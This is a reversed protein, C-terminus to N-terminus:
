NRSTQAQLARSTQTQLAFPDHQANSVRAEHTRAALAFWGFWGSFCVLLDSILNLKRFLLKTM